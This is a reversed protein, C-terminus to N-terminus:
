TTQDLRGIPTKRVRGSWDRFRVRRGVYGEYATCTMRGLRDRITVNFSPVGAATWYEAVLMTFDSSSVGHKRCFDPLADRYLQLSKELGPSPSGNIVVGNLFDLTIRRSRDKRAEAFIDLVYIGIIFSLGSALSAAMNHAVSRLVEHRM